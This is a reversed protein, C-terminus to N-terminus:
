LWKRWRMYGMLIVALILMAITLLLFAGPNETGPLGAVNMGFVGTLFSLPLFIAAVISLVYMRQNQEEAIRDQLEGQLVLARERALDLDEVFRTIRDSQTQLAHSERETLADNNRFLTDLAVRQPALYRRIAATQRRSIRLRQRAESIHVDGLTSEVETLEDDIDDVVDAIRTAIRETIMTVAQGTTRPGSGLEINQRVDEVSLLRRKSRRASIILRDSFWLRLSVMDEPDAGPNGNVGRLTILYGSGLPIARPRSESATVAAVIRSDIKHQQLWSAAHPSDSHIHVWTFGETPPTVLATEANTRQGSGEGDLHYAWLVGNESEQNVTSIETM